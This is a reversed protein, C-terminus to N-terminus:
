VSQRRSLRTRTKVLMLVLLLFGVYGNIVYVINVMQSFPLALGVLTGVAALVLTLYRFRPTRDVFFRSSVTGLRPTATAYIGAIIM